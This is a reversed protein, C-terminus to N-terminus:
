VCLHFHNGYPLPIVIAMFIFVYMIKAARDDSKIMSITSNGRVVLIQM